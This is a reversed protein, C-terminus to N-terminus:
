LSNRDVLNTPMIRHLRQSKNSLIYEAAERGMAAFDTSFTTIGGFILEKIIDDNHSLIGVDKGLELGKIKADKLMDWLELNSITFYVNGPQISGSKYSDEVCAEIKHKRVFKNFSELVDSPDATSQKFYFIFKNYKRIKDKLQLFALYSSERFEQAIYSYDEDTDVYRDVLLVRNTPLLKLLKDIGPRPISAIVYMGYKGNVSEIIGKFTAWNNHHFHVDIKINEGLATRFNKYFTEQFTDFAYLILAVNLIQGSKISAVFYGIRNRSEVVGKHILEKYADAITQRAYGLEKIMTNVSPLADNKELINENIANLIGNVIRHSKSFSKVTELKKIEEIVKEM